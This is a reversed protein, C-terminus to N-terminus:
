KVGYQKLLEIVGQHPNHYVFNFPTNGDNAKQNLNAANKLLIKVIELRQAYCAYM